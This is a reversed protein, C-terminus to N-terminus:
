GIGMFSAFIEVSDTIQQPTAPELGSLSYSKGIILRKVTQNDLLGTFFKPGPEMFFLRSNKSGRQYVGIYTVTQSDSPM